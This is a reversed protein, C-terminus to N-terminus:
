FDIEIRATLIGFDDGGEGDPIEVEFPNSYLNGAADEYIYLQGKGNAFRDNNMYSYNVMFKVNDNVHYNVGLTYGNTAGGYVQADFDNADMYDFRFAIEIDGWDQGRNVQTFEGEKNNYVYAGGFLLVGAQAYGGGITADVADNMRTLKNQMYQAQFMFQNWSGALEAGLLLSSEVDMVDDTDLYKKRNISTFSRTSYRYSNPVEFHTKPTRHSVAAGFHLVKGEKQIPMYVFRGTYSHGDSIGYDKNADQAFENEEYEGVARFHIGGIALFHDGWYNAQFGLHRSPALKSALSREIFTVYRSTTTTEMSFGEKYHGAKINWNDKHYKIFMDKMEVIAGAVDIDFEGYWNEWLNAKIAFRARRIDVGSGIDNLSSGVPVMADFYVRTDFWYKFNQDTSEFVLIGNQTETNLETRKVVKGYQNKRVSSQLKVNVNSKGSVNIESDDFGEHSFVLVNTSKEPILISFKGNLDSKSSIKKSGKLRISVDLIPSDGDASTIIGTVTNEQAWSNLSFVIAMILTMLRKLKIM